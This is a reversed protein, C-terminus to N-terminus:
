ELNLHSYVRIITNVKDSQEYEVGLKDLEKKIEEVSAKLTNVRLSIPPPQNVYKLYEEAKEWGLLEVLKKIYFPSVYYTYVLREEENRPELKTEKIKEWAEWFFMSAYPHSRSRIEGALVSRVLKKQKNSLDRFLLLEYSLRLANRLTEDLLYVNKVGTLERIKEDYIGM